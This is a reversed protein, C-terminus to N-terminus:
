SSQSRLMRCAVAKGDVSMAANPTLQVSCHCINIETAWQQTSFYFSANTSAFCLGCLNNAMDFERWASLSRLYCYVKDASCGSNGINIRPGHSRSINCDMM